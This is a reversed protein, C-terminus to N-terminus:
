RSMGTLCKLRLPSRQPSWAPGPPPGQGVAAPQGPEGAAQTREPASPESPSLAGRPPAACTKRGRAALGAVFPGRCPDTVV